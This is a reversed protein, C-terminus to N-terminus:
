NIVRPRGTCRRAFFGLFTINAYNPSGDLVGLPDVCVDNEFVCYGNVIFLRLSRHFGGEM